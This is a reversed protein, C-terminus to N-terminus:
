SSNLSRPIKSHGHFPAKYSIAILEESPLSSEVASLTVPSTWLLLVLTPRLDKM